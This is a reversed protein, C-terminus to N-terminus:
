PATPAPAAFKITYESDKKDTEGLVVTFQPVNKSLDVVFKVTDGSSSDSRTVGDVKGVIGLRQGATLKFTVTINKVDANTNTGTITITNTDQSIKYDSSSVSVANKQLTATSTSVPEMSDTAIWAWDPSSRAVYKDANKDEVKFTRGLLKNVDTIQKLAKAEKDYEYYKSTSVTLTDALIADSAFTIQGGTTADGSPQTFEIATPDVTETTKGEGNDVTVSGTTGVTIKNSGTTSGKITMGGNVTIGATTLDIKGGVETTNNEDVTVLAAPKMGGEINGSLKGGAVPVPMSDSGHITVGHGSEVSVKGTTYNIGAIDGTATEKITVTQAGFKLLEIDLGGALEITTATVASVDVEEATLKSSADTTLKNAVTVNESAGTGKHLLESGKGIFLEDVQVQKNTIVRGANTGDGIILKDVNLAKIVILTADSYVYVIGADFNGGVELHGKTKDVTVNNSSDGVMDGVVHVDGTSTVTMHEGNALTAKGEVLMLGGLEIDTNVNLDGEVLVTVGKISATGDAPLHTNLNGCIWLVGEGEIRTGNLNVNGNVKVTRGKPIQFSTGTLTLDDLIEVDHGNRFAKRIDALNSSGGYGIEYDDALKKYSEWNHSHGTTVTTNKDETEWIFATRVSGDTDLILYGKYNTGSNEYAFDSLKVGDEGAKADTVDWIKVDDIDYPWFQDITDMAVTEKKLRFVFGEGIPDGKYITAKDDAGITYAYPKEFNAKDDDIIEDFNSRSVVLTGAKGDEFLVNLTVSNSDRRNASLVFAYDRATLINAEDFLIVDALNTSEYEYKGSTTNYTTRVVSSAMFNAGKQVDAMNDYGVAVGYLVDGVEVDRQGEYKDLDYSDVEDYYFAVTNKDVAVASGKSWYVRAGGSGYATYLTNQMTSLTHVSAASLADNKTMNQNVSYDVGGDRGDKVSGM